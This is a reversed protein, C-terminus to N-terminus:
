SSAPSLFVTVYLDTRMMYNKGGMLANDIHTGYKMGPEYKSFIAPRIIKPRTARQFVQARWIAQILVKNLENALPCDAKLQLKDKVSSAGLGATINGDVFEGNLIQCTVWNLEEPTLV